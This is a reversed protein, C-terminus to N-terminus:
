SYKEFNSDLYFRTKESYNNKKDQLLVKFLIHVVMCRFEISRPIGEVNFFTRIQPKIIKIANTINPPFATSTVFSKAVSLSQPCGYPYYM